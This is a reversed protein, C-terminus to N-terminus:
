NFWIKVPFLLDLLFHLNSVLLFDLNSDTPCTGSSLSKRVFQEHHMYARTYAGCNFSAIALIDQSVLDLFSKIECYSRDNQMATLTGSGTSSFILWKKACCIAPLCNLIKKLAYYV